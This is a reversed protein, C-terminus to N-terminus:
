GYGRSCRMREGLLTDVRFREVEVWCLEPQRTRYEASWLRRWAAMAADWKPHYGTGGDFVEACLKIDEDM